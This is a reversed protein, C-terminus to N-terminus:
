KDSSLNGIFVGVSLNVLALVVERDPIPQNAIFSLYWLHASILVAVLIFVNKMQNEKFSDARRLDAESDLHAPLPSVHSVFLLLVALM